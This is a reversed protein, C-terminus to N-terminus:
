EAPPSGWRDGIARAHAAAETFANRYKVLLVIYWVLFALMAVIVVCALGITVIIFPALSSQGMTNPGGTLSIGWLAGVLAGITFLGTAITIGWMVIRTHVALRENPIRRAFRSLYLLEGLIAVLGILAGVGGIIQLSLPPTVVRNVENLVEGIAGGIVCIRIAKRWTVPDERMAIRPEQTTILFSAWVGVVVAAVRVLLTTEKPLGMAVLIGIGIGLFLSLAINWLKVRTALRLKDLWDADAYRLLNGHLSRAAPTFCEPCRGDVPLGRLNYGCHACDHDDAVTAAVLVGTAPNVNTDTPDTM